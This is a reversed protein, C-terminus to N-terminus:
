GGLRSLKFETSTDEVQFGLEAIRARLADAEAWQKASRARQRQEALAQVEAPIPLEAAPLWESLRLGLVPECGDLTARKVEDPLPSKVLEWVLALARPLNLDQNIQARFRKLWGENGGGGSPWRWYLERLRNLASQAAALAEWSFNLQRRYHATLCLYRYALPDFGQDILTQLRLFDGSSKSMKAEGLQLFYGHMWFNALRTGHCAETQAIENSHHVPIHDEGGCHIDFWPGLYKASMASCEIHWGPFGRGWPSDWEMQRQQEPPSFKWLAFDTPQRKDGLGVRKGAQLGAHDLRALYGYRDQRSTDFYIGDATRYTYGKQELTAIFAIQEAIHDTARCWLTPELLNLARMDAQFAQTYREALAWASEGARRSGKEMKDEGEDADSVLHGVDTINVVHRVTYGNFQLVRRLLDEFIYTRLNGIHAYDYVTPGCCYLGVHDPRLPAFLRIARQYTDYLSLPM